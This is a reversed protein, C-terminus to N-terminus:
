DQFEVKVQFVNVPEKLEEIHSTSSIQSPVAAKDVLNPSDFDTPASPTFLSHPTSSSYGVSSPSPTPSSLFMDDDSMETKQFIDLHNLFVNNIM